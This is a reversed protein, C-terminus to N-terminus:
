KRCPCVKSFRYTIGKEQFTYGEDIGHAVGSDWGSGGCITCNPNTVGAVGGDHRMVRRIMNKIEPLSPIKGHAEVLPLVDRGTEVPVDLLFDDQTWAGKMSNRGVNHTAYMGCIRDIMGEIQAPTM